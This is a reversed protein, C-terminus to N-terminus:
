DFCCKENNAPSECLFQLVAYVLLRPRAECRIEKCGGGSHCVSIPIPATTPEHCMTGEVGEEEGEGWELTPDMGCQHPQRTEPVTHEMKPDCAQPTM